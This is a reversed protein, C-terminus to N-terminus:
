PNVKSLLNFPLKRAVFFISWEPEMSWSLPWINKANLGESGVDGVRFNYITFGEPITAGEPLQYILLNGKALYPSPTYVTTFLTLSVM